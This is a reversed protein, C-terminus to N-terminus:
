FGTFRAFYPKLPVSNFLTFASLNERFNRSTLYSYLLLDNPDNGGGNQTILNRNAAFVSDIEKKSHYKYLGANAKEFINCFIDYDKILKETSYNEQANGGFIVFWSVISLLLRKM